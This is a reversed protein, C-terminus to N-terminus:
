IYKCLEKIQEFTNELKSIEEKTFFKYEDIEDIQTKIIQNSKIKALFIYELRKEKKAKKNTYEIKYTIFPNIIEKVGDITIGKKEGIFKVKINLEEMIERKMASFIDEKKEIHGGPLTWYDKNKHRVLLFKGESNKLFCRVIQHM